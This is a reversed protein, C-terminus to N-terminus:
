DTGFEKLLQQIEDEIQQYHQGAHSVGEGFDTLGAALDAIAEATQAIEDKVNGAFAQGIIGYTEGGLEVNRGTNAADQLQKGLRSVTSSHTALDGPTSSFGSTM